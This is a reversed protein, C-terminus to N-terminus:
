RLYEDLIWMCNYQECLERLSEIFLDSRDKEELLLAPLYELSDLFEPLVHDNKKEYAMKRAELILNHIAKIAKLYNSTEIM